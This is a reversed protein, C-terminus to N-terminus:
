HPTTQQAILGIMIEFRPAGLPSLPGVAKFDYRLFRANKRVRVGFLLTRAPVSIRRGGVWRPALSLTRGPAPTAELLGIGWDAFRHAGELWAGSWRGSWSGTNTARQEIGAEVGPVVSRRLRDLTVVLRATGRIDRTRTGVEFPSEARRRADTHSRAIRLEARGGWSRAHAGFRWRRTEDAAAGPQLDSARSRWELSLDAAARRSELAGSLERRSRLSTPASLRLMPRGTRGFAEEWRAQGRLGVSEWTFANRLAAGLRTMRASPQVLSLAWESRGSSGHLMLQSLGLDRPLRALAISWTPRRFGLELLGDQNAGGALAHVPGSRTEVWVAEGQSARRARAQSHWLDRPAPLAFGDGGMVTWTAGEVRASSWGSAGARRARAEVEVDRYRMRAAIRSSRSSSTIVRQAEARWSRDARVSSITPESRSQSTLYPVLDRVPGRADLSLERLSSAERVRRAISDAEARTLGLLRAVAEGDVEELPIPTEFDSRIEIVDQHAQEELSDQVSWLSDAWEASWSDGTRPDMDWASVANSPPESRDNPRRVVRPFETTAATWSAATTAATGSVNGATAQTVGTPRAMFSATTSATAGIMPGSATTTTSKMSAAANRARFNTASEAHQPQAPRTFAIAVGSTSAGSELRARWICIGVHDFRFRLWNGVSAGRDIWSQGIEFSPHGRWSIEFAERPSRRDSLEWSRGHGIEFRGLNLSARGGVTPAVGLLRADGTRFIDAAFIQAHAHAGFSRDLAASLTTTSRNRIGIEELNADTVSRLHDIAISFNEQPQCSLQAMWEAYHPAALRAVRATWRPRHSLSVGLADLSVDASQHPTVHMWGISWGGRAHTPASDEIPSELPMAGAGGGLRTPRLEFAADTPSPLTLLLLLITACWAANKM